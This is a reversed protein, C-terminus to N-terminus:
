WRFRVGVSISCYPWTMFPPFRRMFGPQATGMTGRVHLVKWAFEFVSGFRFADPENSIPMWQVRAEFRLDRDGFLVGFSPGGGALFAFIGYWEGSAAYHVNRMEGDVGITLFKAFVARGSIQHEFGAYETFPPWWVGQVWGSFIFHEEEHVLDIRGSASPGWGLSDGLAFGAGLGLEGRVEPSAMLVASLVCASLM